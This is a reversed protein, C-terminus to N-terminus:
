SSQLSIEFDTYRVACRHGGGVCVRPCIIVGPFSAYMLEDTYDRLPIHREGYLRLTERCVADLYPLSTLKDYDLDQDDFDRAEELEARLKVQVDPNLALLHLIRALIGSSTEAGAFLLM